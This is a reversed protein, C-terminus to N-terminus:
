WQSGFWDAPSGADGAGEPAADADPVTFAHMDTLIALFRAFIM